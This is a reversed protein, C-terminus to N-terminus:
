NEARNEHIVAPIRIVLQEVETKIVKQSKPALVASHIGGIEL